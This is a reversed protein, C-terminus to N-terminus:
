FDLADAMGCATPQVTGSLEDTKVTKKKTKKNDRKKTRLSLGVPLQFINKSGTKM